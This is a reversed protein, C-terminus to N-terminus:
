TWLDGLAMIAGVCGMDAGGAPVVKGLRLIGGDGAADLGPSVGMMDGKLALDTRDGNSQSAARFALLNASALDLWLQLLDLVLTRCTRSTMVRVTVYVGRISGAGLPLRLFTSHSSNFCPATLHPRNLPGIFTLSSVAYANGKTM